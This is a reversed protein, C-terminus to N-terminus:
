RKGKFMMSALLLGGAIVGWNPFASFITKEELWSMAGSVAGSSPASMQGTAPNQVVASAPVITGTSLNLWNGSGDNLPVVQNTSVVPAPAPSIPPTTVVPVSPAPPLPLPTAPPQPVVSTPGPSPTHWLVPPGPLVPGVPGTYDPDVPMPPDPRVYTQEGRMIMESRFPYYDGGNAEYRLLGLGSDAGELFADELTEFFDAPFSGPAVSTGAHRKTQFGRYTMASGSANPRPPVEAASRYVGRPNRQTAHVLDHSSMGDERDQEYQEQPLLDTGASESHTFGKYHGGPPGGPVTLRWGPSAFAKVTGYSM